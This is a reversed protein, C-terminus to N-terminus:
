RDVMKIYLDLSLPLIRSPFQKPSYIAGWKREREREPKKKLHSPTSPTYQSVTRFPIGSLINKKTSVMGWFTEIATKKKHVPECREQPKFIFTIEREKIIATRKICPLPIIVHFYSLVLTWLVWSFFFCFLLPITAGQRVACLINLLLGGSLFIVM